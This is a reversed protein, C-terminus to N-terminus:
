LHLDVHGAQLVPSTAGDSGPADGDAEEPQPQPAVTHRAVSQQGQQGQQRGDSVVVTAASGDSGLEHRLLPLAQRLASRAEDNDAGLQVVVQQASVTITAKVTGMGEPELGITVQHTGDASTRLPALV